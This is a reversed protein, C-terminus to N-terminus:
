PSLQLRYRSDDASQLYASDKSGVIIIGQNGLSSQVPALQELLTM